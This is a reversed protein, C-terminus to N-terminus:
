EGYNGFCVIIIEFMKNIDYNYYFIDFKLVCDNVLLKKIIMIFFINFVVFLM